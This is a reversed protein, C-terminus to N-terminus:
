LFSVKTEHWPDYEKIKPQLVCHILPFLRWESKCGTLQIHRLEQRIFFCLLFFPILKIDLM